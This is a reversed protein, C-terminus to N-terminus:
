NKLTEHIKYRDEVVNGEKDTLPCLFLLCKIEAGEYYENNQRLYIEDDPLLRSKKSGIYVDCRDKFYKVVGEEIVASSPKTKPFLTFFDAKSM